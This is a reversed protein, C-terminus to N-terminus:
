RSVRNCKNKYECALLM